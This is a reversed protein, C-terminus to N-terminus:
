QCRLTLICKDGIVVQQTKIMRIGIGDKRLTSIRGNPATRAFMSLSLFLRANPSFRLETRLDDENETLCVPCLIYRGTLLYSDLGAPAHILWPKLIQFPRGIQHIKKHILM